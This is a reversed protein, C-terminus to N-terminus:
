IASKGFVSFQPFFCKSPKCNNVVDIYDAHVRILLRGGTILFPSASNRM